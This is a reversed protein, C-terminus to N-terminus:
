SFKGDKEKRIENVYEWKDKVSSENIVKKEFKEPVIPLVDSAWHGKEKTNEGYKYEEPMLLTLFHGRVSTSFMSEDQNTYYHEKDGKKSLGLAKAVKRMIDPKECIIVTSM